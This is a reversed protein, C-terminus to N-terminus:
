SNLGPTIFRRLANIVEDPHSLFPAHSAGPILLLEADQRQSAMWSAAAVPALTDRDGHV